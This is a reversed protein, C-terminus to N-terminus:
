RRRTLAGGAVGGFLHDEPPYSPYPERYTRNGRYPPRPPLVGHLYSCTDSSNLCPVVSWERPRRRPRRPARARPRAPPRAPSWGRNRRTPWCRSATGSAKPPDGSGDVAWATTRSAPAQAAVGATGGHRNGHVAGRVERRSAPWRSRRSSRGSSSRQDSRGGVRRRPVTLTSVVAGIAFVGTTVGALGTWPAAVDRGRAGVRGRAEATARCRRTRRRSSASRLGM